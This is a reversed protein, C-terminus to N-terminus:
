TWSTVHRWVSKSVCFFFQFQNKLNSWHMLCSLGTPPTWLLGSSVFLQHSKDTHKVFGNTLPGWCIEIKDPLNFAIIVVTWAMIRKLALTFFLSLKRFFICHNKNKPTIVNWCLTNINYEMEALPDWKTYSIGWKRTRELDDYRCEWFMEKWLLWDM